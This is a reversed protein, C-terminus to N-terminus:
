DILKLLAAPDLSHLLQYIRLYGISNPVFGSDKRFYDADIPIVILQANTKPKSRDFFENNFIFLPDKNPKYTIGSPSDGFYAPSKLQAPTLKQYEQKLPDLMVQFVPQAKALLEYFTILRKYAEEVTCPLYLERGPKCIVIAADYLTVGPALEKIKDPKVIDNALAEAKKLSQEGQADVNFASHMLPLIQNIYVSVRPPEITQRYVKGKSSFWPCLRFNIEGIVGYNQPHMEFGYPYLPRSEVMPDIGRPNALVPNQHMVNVLQDLKKKFMNVEEPKMGYQSIYMKTNGDDLYAYSWTGPKDPLPSPEQASLSAHIFVMFLLTPIAYKMPSSKSTGSCYREPDHLTYSKQM